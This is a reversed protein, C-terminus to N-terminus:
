KQDARSDNMQTGKSGLLEEALQIIETEAIDCVSYDTADPKRLNVRSATKIVRNIETPCICVPTAGFLTISPIGCGWAIHTPGSDGGIVLDCRGVAAKLQNLNLRPLIRVNAAKNAILEATQLEQQNGHCILINEGLMEALRSFKEPPYNKYAASTEPVFIINRKQQDFYEDTIARDADSWFLFPEPRSLDTTRFELGLSGCALTAYRSAAPLELPVPIQHDYFLGALPEKLMQRAFGHRPGGMIAAVVASKLLGHLDIVADFAGFSSLHRYEAFLATLSKKKKLSKLDVRVVQRIDPHHDLIDAFRKDAAWTIHCDPLHRRIIQLSAMGLIIDGLSTLRVFAINM